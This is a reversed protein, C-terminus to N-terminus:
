NESRTSKLYTQLIEVAINHDDIQHLGTIMISGRTGVGEVILPFGGGHVAYVDEPAHNVAHWDIGMEEAKVREYMTSHGTLAVVAAKRIIWTDNSADTGPLSAHFAVWGGMRIEIAIPLDREHAIRLATEGIALATKVDLTPLQLNKEQLALEESTFDGTTM